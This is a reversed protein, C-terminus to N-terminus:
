SPRRLRGAPVPRLATFEAGLTEKLKERLAAPLADVASQFDKDGPFATRGQESVSRVEDGLDPFVFEERRGALDAATKAHPSTSLRRRRM